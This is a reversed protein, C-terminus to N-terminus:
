FPKCDCFKAQPARHTFANVLAAREACACCGPFTVVQVHCGLLCLVRLFTRICALYCSTLGSFCVTLLKSNLTMWIIHYNPHFNLSNPPIDLFTDTSKTHHGDCTDVAPIFSGRLPVSPCRSRHFKWNLTTKFLSDPTPLRRLILSGPPVCLVNLNTTVLTWHLVAVEPETHLELNMQPERHSLSSGRKISRLVSISPQIKQGHSQFRLPWNSNCHRRGRRHRTCGLGGGGLRTRDRVEFSVPAHTASHAQRQYADKDSLLIQVSDAWDAPVSCAKSTISLLHNPDFRRWCSLVCCRHLCLTTNTMVAYCLNELEFFFLGLRLLSDMHVSDHKTM